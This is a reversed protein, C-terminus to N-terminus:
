LIKKVDPIVKDEETDGIGQERFLDPNSLMKIETFSKGKKRFLGTHPKKKNVTAVFGGEYFVSGSKLTAVAGSGSSRM